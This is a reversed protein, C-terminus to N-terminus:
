WGSALSTVFSLASNALSTTGSGAQTALLAWSGGAATLVMPLLFMALDAMKHGSSGKAVVTLWLFGILGVVLVITASTGFVKATTVDTAHYLLHVVKNALQSLLGVGITAGSGFFLWARARPAKGQWRLLGAIVLLIAGCVATTM